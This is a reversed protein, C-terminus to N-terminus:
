LPANLKKKRKKWSKRIIQSNYLALADVLEEETEYVSIDAWGKKILHKDYHARWRFRGSESNHMIFVKATPDVYKRADRIAKWFSSFDTSYVNMYTM